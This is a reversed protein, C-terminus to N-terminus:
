QSGEKLNPLGPQSEKSESPSLSAQEDCGGKRQIVEHVKSGTFVKKAEHVQRVTEKSVGRLLDIEAETYIVEKVGKALLKERAEEDSAAWLLDQLIESYILWPRDELPTIKRENILRIALEEPVEVEQGPELDVIGESTRVKLKVKTLCKM